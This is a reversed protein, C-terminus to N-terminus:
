WGIKLTVMASSKVMALPAAGPQVHHGLAVASDFRHGGSLEAPLVAGQHRPQSDSSNASSPHSTHGHCAMAIIRFESPLDYPVGLDDLLVM